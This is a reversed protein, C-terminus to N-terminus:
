RAIGKSSKDKSQLVNFDTDETRHNCSLCLWYAIGCFRDVFPSYFRQMTRRRCKECFKEKLLPM